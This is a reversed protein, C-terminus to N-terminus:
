GRDENEMGIIDVTESSDRKLPSIKVDEIPTTGPSAGEGGFEELTRTVTIQVGFPEDDHYRRLASKSRVSIHPYVHAHPADSASTGIPVPATRDSTSLLGFRFRIQLIILAFVIGVLPTCVDVAPYQGNSGMMYAVFAGLVGAAYLAGSQIIIGAVPLVSRGLRGPRASAVIRYVILATSLVNVAMTLAFWATIWGHETDFIAMGDKARSFQYPLFIAAALIVSWATAFGLGIWRNRDYVVYCRWAIFGDGLLTQAGYIVAKAVHLPHALNNYYGNADDSRVFGMIARAFGISLHTVSLLMMATSVPLLVYRQYEAPGTKFLVVTTVCYLAFFVGCLFGELLLSLLQAEDLAIGM